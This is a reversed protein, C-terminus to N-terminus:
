RGPAIRQLDLVWRHGSFDFGRRGRRRGVLGCRFGSAFGSVFESDLGGDFGATRFWGGLRCAWSRSSRILSRHNDGGAHLGQRIVEAVVEFGGDILRHDLELFAVDDFSGHDGDIGVTGHDVDSVLGFTQDRGLLERNPGVDVGRRNDRDALLDFGEDEVFLIVFASQDEGLLPGLVLAGPAPDM